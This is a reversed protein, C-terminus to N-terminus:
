MRMSLTRVEDLVEVEQQLAVRRRISGVMTAQLIELTPSVLADALTVTTWDSRGITISCPHPHVFPHIRALHVPSHSPRFIVYM